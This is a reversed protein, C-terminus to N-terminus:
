VKIHVFSIRRMKLFFFLDVVFYSVRPLRQLNKGEEPAQSPKSEPSPKLGDTSPSELCLPSDNECNTSQSKGNQGDILDPQPAANM